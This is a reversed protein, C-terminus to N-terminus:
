AKLPSGSHINDQLFKTAEEEDRFLPLIQNLRTLTFIRKVPEKAECIVIRGQNSTLIKLISVLSGLGNSDIFDVESLNLIIQDHNQNILEIVKTKFDRSNFTEISKDLPKIFLFKNAEKVDIQMNM